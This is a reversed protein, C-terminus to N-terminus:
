VSPTTIYSIIVPVRGNPVSVPGASIAVIKLSTADGGEDFSGPSGGDISRTSTFHRCRAGSSRNAFTMSSAAASSASSASSGVPSDAVIAVAGSSGARSRSRPISPSPSGVRAIATLSIVGAGTVTRRNSSGSSESVAGSFMPMSLRRLSSESTVRSGRGAPRAAVAGIM